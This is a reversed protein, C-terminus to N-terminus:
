KFNSIFVNFHRLQGRDTTKITLKSCTEVCQERTEIATKSYAFALHTNRLKFSHRRLTLLIYKFSTQPRQFKFCLFYQKINKSFYLLSILFDLFIQFDTSEKKHTMDRFFRKCSSFSTVSSRIWRANAQEFDAISVLISYSIQETLLLSM